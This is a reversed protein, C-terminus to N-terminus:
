QEKSPGSYGIVENILMDSNQPLYHLKHVLKHKHQVFLCVFFVWSISPKIFTLYAIQQFGTANSSM